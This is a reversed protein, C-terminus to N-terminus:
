IEVTLIYHLNLARPFASFLGWNDTVYDIDSCLDVFHMLMVLAFLEGRPVTQVPGPLNLSMGAILAGNSDIAALGCGIRRIPAFTTFDGGSADGYYTGSNWVIPLPLGDPPFTFLDATKIFFM